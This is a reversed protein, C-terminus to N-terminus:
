CYYVERIWRSYFLFDKLEGRRQESVDEAYGFPCLIDFNSASCDLNRSFMIRNIEDLIGYYFIRLKEFDTKFDHLM